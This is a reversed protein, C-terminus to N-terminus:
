QAPDWSVCIRVKRISELESKDYRGEPLQIIVTQDIHNIAKLQIVFFEILM